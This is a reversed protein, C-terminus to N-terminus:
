KILIVHKTVTQDGVTAKILYIGSSISQDPTWIFTRIGNPLPEFNQVGVDHAYVVNGRLDYVKLTMEECQKEERHFRSNMAIGASYLVTIKVSSNFPNSCWDGGGATIHAIHPHHHENNYFRM